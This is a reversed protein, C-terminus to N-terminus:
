FRDLRSARCRGGPAYASPVRCALGGACIAQGSKRLTIPREADLLKVGPANFAM